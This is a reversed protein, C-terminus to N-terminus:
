DFLNDDLLKSYIQKETSKVRGQQNSSNIRDLSISNNEQLKKRRAEIKEMSNREAVLNDWHEMFDELYEFEDVGPLCNLASAEALASIMMRNPRARTALDNLDAYPQSRFLM